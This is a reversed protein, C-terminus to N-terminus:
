GEASKALENTIAALDDAIRKRGFLGALMMTGRLRIDADVTMLTGEPIERYTEAIRSGKLDGGIVFVEHSVPREIVHKAMMALSRGSLRVHEEVVTVNDRSSRIRVSPFYQPMSKPFSEYDTAIEFIRRRDTRVTKEYRIKPM